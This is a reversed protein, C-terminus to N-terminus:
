LSEYKQKIALLQLAAYAADAGKNLQLPDAREQAQIMTDVTLIGNGIPVGELTLTMIGHASQTCVIEFHFTDGRIVCGLAVYADYIGQRSALAIAGPIELAGPVQGREIIAGAQNLVAQAGAYLQDTVDDYFRAEVVLVKPAAKFAPVPFQHQTKM